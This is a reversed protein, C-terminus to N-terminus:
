ETVSDLNKLYFKQIAKNIKKQMKKVQKKHRKLYEVAWTTAELEDPLAFYEFDLKKSKLENETGMEASIREKEAVCYDYTKDEILDVTERHGVEHLVSLIFNYEPKVKYNFTQKVFENFWIDTTYELLTYALTDDCFRYEWEDYFVVNKVGLPALAKKVAKNLKKIGKM